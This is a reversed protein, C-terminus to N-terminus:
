LEVKLLFKIVPVGLVLWRLPSQLSIPRSNSCRVRVAGIWADTKEQAQWVPKGLHKVQWAIQM